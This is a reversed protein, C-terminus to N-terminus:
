PVTWVRGPERPRGVATQVLSSRHASCPDPHDRRHRDTGEHAAACRDGRRRWRQVRRRRRGTGGRDSVGRWEGRHPHHVGEIRRGRRVSRSMEPDVEFRRWAARDGSGTGACHAEGARDRPATHDDDHVRVPHARLVLRDDRRHVGAIGHTPALEDARHVARVVVASRSPAQVPAGLPVALVYVREAQQM